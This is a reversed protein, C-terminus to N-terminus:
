LKQLTPAIAVGVARFVVGCSGELESRLLFRKEDHQVDVQQLANLDRQIEAWEFQESAAALRDQLEKPWYPVPM